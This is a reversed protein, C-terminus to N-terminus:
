AQWQGGEGRREHKGGGEMNMNAEKRGERRGEGGGGGGSGEKRGGERGEGGGGGVQNTILVFSGDEREADRLPVAEDRGAKVLGHTHHVQPLGDRHLSMVLQM